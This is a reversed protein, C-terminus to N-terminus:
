TTASEQPEPHRCIKKPHRTAAGNGRNRNPLLTNYSHENPAIIFLTKPKALAQVLAAKKEWSKHSM